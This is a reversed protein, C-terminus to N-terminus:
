LILDFNIKLKWHATRFLSLDENKLLLLCLLSVFSSHTSYPSSSSHTHSNPWTSFNLRCLSFAPPPISSSAISFYFLPYIYLSCLCIYFSWLLNTSPSPISFSSHSCKPTPPPIPYSSATTSTLLFMSTALCFLLKGSTLYSKSSMSFTWSKNSVASLILYTVFTSIASIEIM